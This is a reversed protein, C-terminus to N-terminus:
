GVVTQSRDTYIISRTTHPLTLLKLPTLHMKSEVDMKLTSILYRIITNFHIKRLFQTFPITHNWFNM